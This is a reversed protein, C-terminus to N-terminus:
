INREMSCEAQMSACCPDYAIMMQKSILILAPGSHGLSIPAEPCCIAASKVTECMHILKLCHMILSSTECVPILKLHHTYRLYRM